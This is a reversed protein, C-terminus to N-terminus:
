EKARAATQRAQELKKIDEPTLKPRDIELTVKNLKGTFAFPPQYDEDNVGTLTDSGIDLSEDIPMLFPITREMQQTAVVNGDVKLVGTGGQGVGSFSDYVLTGMGMGNYKFDFELVHRGPTLAEGGEWKLKRLGVLNWLFVPKNKLVYFGYGGFRGGQTILMGEAGGQPIEVDVKFNYSTNLVSPAVGSPTGILPQTWTFVNRGATISPRPAIARTIVTADLPLVQYKKAEVWFMDQLEKLKAPYKAAVNEAQTWDTNLNYLEWPYDLVSVKPEFHVWPPRMVRTSAIWGDHYMARDGFMEFYQTRHNSPVNANAKDFTYMMSVGEIPSQKIGDVYEPQPIGTAELLTPVIDIVHHFQSRIGGKDKIVKPWSIAMGQRV